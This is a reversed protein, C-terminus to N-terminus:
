IKKVKAIDLDQMWRGGKRSFVTRRYWPGRTVVFEVVKKVLEGVRSVSRDLQM